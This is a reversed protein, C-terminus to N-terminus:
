LMVITTRPLNARELSICSYTMLGIQIVWSKGIKTSKVIDTFVLTLTLHKSGAWDELTKPNDNERLV